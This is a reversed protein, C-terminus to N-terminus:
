APWRVGAALDARTRARSFRHEHRRHLLVGRAAAGQVARDDDRHGQPVRNGGAAPRCRVRRTGHVAGRRRCCCRTGVIVFLIAAVFLESTGTAAVLRFLPRLLLRGVIVIFALALAAQAVALVIGNVISGGVNNGLISVFMLIPVVAMDQALLISFSTRGTTTSMRRQNSLIEIVIATSSLSLCSGIIVAAAPPIGALAVIGGIVATSLVVQLGGLGFVLRRMTLLREYSLELGILFLLFVVGLDAFDSVNQADIVTVWRLFPVEDKFSGLALPGLIAGAGLYGLVPSFGFRRVLPVVIGATGLM